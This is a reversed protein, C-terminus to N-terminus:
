LVVVGGDDGGGGGGGGHGAAYKRVEERVRAEYKAPNSGLLRWAPEQAADANNPAQPLLPVCAGARSREPFWALAHRFARGEDAGAGLFPDRM